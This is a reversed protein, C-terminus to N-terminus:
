SELSYLSKIALRPKPTIQASGTPVVFNMASESAFRPAASLATPSALYPDVVRQAARRQDREGRRDEPVDLSERRHGALLEARCPKRPQDGRAEAEATHKEDDRAQAPAPGPDRKRAPDRAARRKESHRGHEAAKREVDGGGVHQTEMYGGDRQEREPHADEAAGPPNRDYDGHDARERNM